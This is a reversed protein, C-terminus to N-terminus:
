QGLARRAHAHGRQLVRIRGCVIQVVRDDGLAGPTLQGLCQGLGLQHRAVARRFAHQHVRQQPERAFAQDTASSSQAMGPAPTYPPNALRYVALYGAFGVVFAVSAVMLFPKMVDM